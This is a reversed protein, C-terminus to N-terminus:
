TTKNSCHNQFNRNLLTSKMRCTFTASRTSPTKWTFPGFLRLSFCRAGCAVGWLAFLLKMPQMPNEKSSIITNVSNGYVTLGIWAESLFSLVNLMRTDNESKALLWECYHNQECDPPLLQQIAYVDYQFWQLIKTAKHCQVVNWNTTYVKRMSMHLSAALRERVGSMRPRYCSDIPSRAEPVNANGTLNFEKVFMWVTFKAVTSSGFIQIYIVWSQKLINRQSTVGWRSCMNRQVSHRTAM